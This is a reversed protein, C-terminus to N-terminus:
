GALDADSGARVCGEKACNERCQELRSHLRMLWKGAQIVRTASSEGTRIMSSIDQASKEANPPLLEKLYFAMTLAEGTQYLARALTPLKMSDTERSLAFCKVARAVARTLDDLTTEQSHAAHDSWITHRNKGTVKPDTRRLLAYVEILETVWDTELNFTKRVSEMRNLQAQYAAVNAANWEPPTLRLDGTSDAPRSYWGRPVYIDPHSGSRSADDKETSSAIVKITGDTWVEAMATTVGDPMAGSPDPHVVIHTDDDPDALILSRDAGRSVQVMRRTIILTPTNKHDKVLRLANALTDNTLTTTVTKDDSTTSDPM